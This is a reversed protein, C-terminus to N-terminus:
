LYRRDKPAGPLLQNKSQNDKLLTSMETKDQNKQNRITSFKVAHIGGKRYSDNLIEYLAWIDRRVHGRPLLRIVIELVSLLISQQRTSLNFDKM